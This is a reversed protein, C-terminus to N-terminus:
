PQTLAVYLMKSLQGRTAHESPRFTGDRYGSIIGRAHATEVYAYFTSGPPVDSFRAEVPALLPWQGAIVLIKCLQGRTVPNNPRFSGDGYGGVIGRLVGAEVYGYSWDHPGVDNFTPQEPENLPWGYGLVVMKVIQARTATSGPRFTNDSYGSVIGRCTLWDVAAYFYHSRHV